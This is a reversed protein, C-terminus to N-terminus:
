PMGGPMRPASMASFFSMRELLEGAAVGLLAFWAGVLTAIPFRADALVIVSWPILVGAVLALAYRFFTRRALDGKLLLASRKIEHNTKHRLTLFVLSEGTLKFVVLVILMWGATQTIAVLQPSIGMPTAVAVTWHIVVTAALGLVLSTMLFTFGSRGISWWRRGTAHYIMASCFVAFLGVAVTTLGLPEDWREALVTLTPLSEPDSHALWTAGAHAAALAAFAGFALIERSLWSTRLGLFARWAYQPRGLHMTSAGLAVVGVVLSVVAQFAIALEATADLARLLQALAVTGVSLQTLVLMWVLPMHQHAPRVRNFDAPLMNHPMPSTSKYTTTPITLAPPPAGPLFADAQAADISADQDVIGIAIAESPCAQVCAPAEDALLRDSCMDCKRVIGLSKRYQPVEYPCTFVCYQCGICQDDLHKVIGTVPDKEYAKVPCGELCAPELCHHCATTM